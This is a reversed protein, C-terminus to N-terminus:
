PRPIIFKMNYYIRCHMKYHYADEFKVNEFICKRIKVNGQTKKGTM